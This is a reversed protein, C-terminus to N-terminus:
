GRDKLYWFHSESISKTSVALEGYAESPKCEEWTDSSKEGDGFPNHAPINFATM